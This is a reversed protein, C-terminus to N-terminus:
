VPRRGLQGLLSRAEILDATDLGETFWDYVDGLLSRADAPKGQSAWLRGLSTAARLELSRAQQRRAVTLAQLFMAEAEKTAAPGAEEPGRTRGGARPRRAGAGVDRRLTLEGNLRHLEADWYHQGSRHGVALAEAVTALGDAILGLREQAEAVLAFLGPVLIDVERYQKGSQRMQALGDERRGTEALLWGRHVAGWVFFLAFGHHTDLVVSEDELAQMAPRDRLWQYLTAGFHCGYSLSFPHDLSRALALAEQVRRVAQAPYGLVWRALAAYTLCSVGPDQGVRFAPARAPSHLTPDYLGIGRELHALAAAFEGGYFATAGLATHAALAPASGPSAEAAALLEAVVDRAAPVQGRALDFRAIGYLVPWLQAADGAQAGLTRARAYAQAVEPAAYGHTATLAAALLVQLMLEERAREPRDPMARLLDLARTAHDAAERYAHQGLAHEGARRRYRAAQELARGQEFHVALEGALEGARPGYGHELREALRLHLAAREGASVRAYLVKQYLAHIFAYRGAVTGDPWEAVGAARLFQGNRALAACRREGEAPDIGGAVAVAASLEAGAVSAVALMAQAEAPLRDIQREVMQWLTQPTGLAVDRLPGELTWHGDAERLRGEGILYDLTNLLFLPNGDTTRHLVGALEAPLRHGPFRRALLADVAAVNLFDLAVERCHGHVQLEQKAAKVPHSTAAVDAPRYTGLVLLRAAERRRALMALLDVTASDSWHLDELVLVLPTAATLADLAEVLERLMRDRTAAQARRQVADLERDAVLAPLQVLWTPAHRLLIEVLEESGAGRGLRGLAELVPLYPEGSGYQEVCQGRGVRPTDDETAQALFAEVLATKGIGPEGTVFVLQRERGRSRRWADQLIALESERGVLTAGAPSSALSGAGTVGRSALATPAGAIPGIFRFGRRHVTEIYRPSSSSDGLERRLDRICSTLAADSVVTDRWVAGHLDDKTILRRPHEVLYRLVAFARPTLELRRGGCWAWENEAEVRVAPPDPPPTPSTGM